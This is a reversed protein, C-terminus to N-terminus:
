FSSGRGRAWRWNGAHILTAIDTTASVMSPSIAGLFMVPAYSAQLVPMPVGGTKIAVQLTFKTERFSTCGNSKTVM